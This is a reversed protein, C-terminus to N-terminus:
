GAKEKRAGNPALQSEKARAVAHGSEQAPTAVTEGEVLSYPTAQSPLRVQMPKGIRGLLLEAARRGAAGQDMLMQTARLGAVRTDTSDGFTMLSLDAPVRLGLAVQHRFLPDFDVPAYGLLATPRDPASLRAILDRELELADTLVLPELRAAAMAQTYGEMRDPKSYHLWRAQRAREIYTDLYAIRRHGLALLHETASRGAALDDPYVANVAQKQNIWIAPVRRLELSEELHEPFTFNYNVLLGDSSWECLLRPLSEEGTLQADSLMAINLHVDRVDLAACIGTLLARPLYSREAHDSMVLTVAGFTGRKLTRAAANARFGLEAAAERVRRVTESNYPLGRNSLINSVTARSSGVKEAIEQLSIAVRV